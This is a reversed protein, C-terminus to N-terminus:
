AGVKVTCLWNAKGGLVTECDLTWDRLTKAPIRHYVGKGDMLADLVPQPLENPRPAKEYQAFVNSYRTDWDIKPLIFSSDQEKAFFDEAFPLFTFDIYTDACGIDVVHSPTCHFSSFYKGRTMMSRCIAPSIIMTNDIKDHRIGVREIRSGQRM